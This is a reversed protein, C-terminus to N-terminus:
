EVSRFAVVANHGGFGFSNTIALINSGELKRPNVVVDLKIEPDQNELNITPPATKEYLALVTFIAEIAGAGGLLHGTSAKTASVPISSLKEGFVRKLAHYEAIDGVPTSTAHANIHAVDQISSDAQKLAGLMARAAATGEPDPATIHHADSTVSAGVVEAYIKAGRAKAHEESELILTGAGEGM